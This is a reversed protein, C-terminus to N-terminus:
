YGRVAKNHADIAKNLDELWKNLKDIEDNARTFREYSRVDDVRDIFARNKENAVEHFASWDKDPICGAVKHRSCVYPAFAVVETTAIGFEIDGLALGDERKRYAEVCAGYEMRRRDRPKVISDDIYPMSYDFTGCTQAITKFGQYGKLIKKLKEITYDGKYRKNGIFTHATVNAEFAARARANLGTYYAVSDERLRALRPKMAAKGTDNLGRARNEICMRRYDARETIYKAQIRDSEAQTKVQKRHLAYDETTFRDDENCEKQTQAWWQDAAAALQEEKTRKPHAAFVALARAQVDAEPQAELFDAGSGCAAQFAVAAPSGAVVRAAAAPKFEAPKVRHGADYNIASAVRTTRAACDLELGYLNSRVGDLNAEDILVYRVLTKDGSKQVSAKDVALVFRTRESEFPTKAVLWSGPFRYPEETQALAPSGSLVLAIALVWRKM